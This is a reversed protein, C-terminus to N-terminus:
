LWVLTIICSWFGEVAAEVVEVLVVALSAEQLSTEAAAIISGFAPGFWLDVLYVCGGGRDEM